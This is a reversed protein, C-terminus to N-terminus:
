RTWSGGTSYDWEITGDDYMLLGHANLSYGDKLREMVAGGTEHVATCIYESGNRNLYITGIEPTFRRREWTREINNM